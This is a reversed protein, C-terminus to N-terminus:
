NILLYLVILTYSISDLFIDDVPLPNTNHLKLVGM